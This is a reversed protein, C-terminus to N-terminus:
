ATKAGLVFSMFKRTPVEELIRLSCKTPLSTDFNIETSYHYVHTWM